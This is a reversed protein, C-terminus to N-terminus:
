NHRILSMPLLQEIMCFPAINAHELWDKPMRNMFTPDSFLIMAIHGVTWKTEWFQRLINRDKKSRARGKRAIQQVKFSLDTAKIMMQPLMEVLPAFLLPQMTQWIKFKEQTLNRGSKYLATHLSKLSRDKELFNRIKIEKEQFRERQKALGAFKHRTIVPIDGLRMGPGLCTIFSGNKALIAHSSRDGESLQIALRETQNSFTFFKIISRTFEADYYLSLAFNVEEDSARELRSLFHDDHTM